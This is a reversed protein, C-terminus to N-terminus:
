RPVTRPRHFAGGIGWASLGELPQSVQAELLELFQVDSLPPAFYYGQGLAAGLHRVVALEKADEIGEALTIAGLNGARAVLDALVADDELAATVYARDLKVLDVLDSGLTTLPQSGVGFDDAAVRVGASRLWRVRAVGSRGLEALADAKVELVLRRPALACEALVATIEQHLNEQAAELRSLNVSVWPAREGLTREWEGATAAAQAVVWRGLEVMAGSAEARAVVDATPVDVDSPSTWRLLAEAGVVRGSRLEVVPQYAVSTRGSEIAVAVEAPTLEDDPPDPFDSARARAIRGKGARKARYMANDAARLAPGLDDVPAAVGISAMLSVAESDDLGPPVFPPALRHQVRVAVRGAVDEIRGGTVLVAFEDGGVRAVMDRGRVSASLRAGAEALVQDGVEHGHRDNVDKFDDLDVYLVAVPQPDDVRRLENLQREFMARNPLGTVSDHHAVHDLQNRHAELEETVLVLRVVVLGFALLGIALLM